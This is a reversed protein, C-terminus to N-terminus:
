RQVVTVACGERLAQDAALSVRLAAVAEGATVTEPTGQQVCSLFHEMAAMIAYERVDPPAKLKVPFFGDGQLVVLPLEDDPNDRILITGEPGVLRREASRTREATLREAGAALITIQGLAGSQFELSLLETTPPQGEVAAGQMASVRGVPGLFSQLTDLAHCREAALAPSASEQPMQVSVSGFVPAGIGGEELLARTRVHAPIFRQFLMCFLRRDAARAAEILAEAGEISATLPASCLVHKGAALAELAAAEQEAPPLCLDVVAIEPDALLERYDATVRKIIGFRDRLRAVTAEDGEALSVTRVRQSHVHASLHPWADGGGGILGIKLSM